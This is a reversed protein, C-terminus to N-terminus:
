YQVCDLYDIYVIDGPVKILKVPKYYYSESKRLQVTMWIAVQHQKALAKLEEYVQAQGKMGM